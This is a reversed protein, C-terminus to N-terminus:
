RCRKDGNENRPRRPPGTERSAVIDKYLIRAHALRLNGVFQTAALPTSFNLFEIQAYKATGLFIYNVAIVGASLSEVETALSVVVSSCKEVVM